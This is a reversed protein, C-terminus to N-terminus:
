RGSRVSRESIEICDEQVTTRLCECPTNDNDSRTSKCLGSRQGLHSRNLGQGSGLIMPSM